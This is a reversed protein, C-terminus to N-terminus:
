GRAAVLRKYVDRATDELGPPTPGMPLRCEGVDHGLTRLMAKAPVPNPAADGTEFDFSELQRENARRAGAPDDRQWADFM